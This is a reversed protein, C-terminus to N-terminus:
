NYREIFREKARFYPLLMSLLNDQKTAIGKSIIDDIARLIKHITDVRSQFDQCYANYESSYDKSPSRHQKKLIAIHEGLLEKKRAYIAVKLERYSLLVLAGSKHSAFISISLQLCVYVVKVFFTHKNIFEQSRLSDINSEQYPQFKPSDFFMDGPRSIQKRSDSDDSTSTDIDPDLDSPLYLQCMDRVRRVDAHTESYDQLLARRIELCMQNNSISM